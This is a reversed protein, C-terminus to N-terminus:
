LSAFLAAGRCKAYRGKLHEVRPYAGPRVWLCPLSIIQNKQQCSHCDLRTDAMATQENKLKFIINNFDRVITPFSPPIFVPKRGAAISTSDQTQWLQRSM